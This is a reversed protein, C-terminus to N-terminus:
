KRGKGLSGILLTAWLFLPLAYFNGCLLPACLISMMVHISQGVWDPFRIAQVSAYFLVVTAILSAASLDRILNRDHRNGTARARWLIMWPPLFFVAAMVRLVVKEGTTEPQPVALSACATLVFLVGWIGYLIQNSCKSYKTM